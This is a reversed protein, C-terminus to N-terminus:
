SMPNSPGMRCPAGILKAGAKEVHKILKKKENAPLIGEIPRVGVGDHSATFNFFTCGEPPPALEQAWKTLFSANATALGHLLLPPLSFQYVMQAEDGYGFYSVNEEHPVNTETLLITRPAIIDVIDRFLKVIEHTEPLHICNTGLEKWVFAVADMRVIRMGKSIYFMLIDIFEFLVEPNCWNLDVQDASFTTWVNAEGDITRTKTLLPSTRPRVVESYDQKPDMNLFYHRAPEIGAIFDKFWSSRASCHNLVLDFMLDFEKGLHEVDQWNGAGAEVARYDIVSFGDDSSWPYFPLLHITRIAGKLHEQAFSELARLPTGQQPSQISDAYTILVSDKESWIEGPTATEIGGVGYRGIMMFFRELLREAEGGYLHNLRHRVSRLQERSVSKIM